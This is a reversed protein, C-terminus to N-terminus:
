YEHTSAKISSEEITIGDSTNSCSRIMNRFTRWLKARCLSPNTSIPTWALCVHLCHITLIRSIYGAGPLLVSICIIQSIHRQVANPAGHALRSTCGPKKMSSKSTIEFSVGVRFTVGKGSTLRSPCNPCLFRCM